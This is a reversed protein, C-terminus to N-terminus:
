TCGCWTDYDIPTKYVWGGPAEHVKGRFEAARFPRDQPKTCRQNPPAEGRIPVSAGSVPTGIRTCVIDPADAGHTMTLPKRM